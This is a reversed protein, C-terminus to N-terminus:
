LKCPGCDDDEPLPALPQDEDHEDEKQGDYTNTYYRNKVGYTYATLTDKILLTVPIKGEEFNEPNYDFNASISQCMYKQMIAVIKIYGDMTDQDWQYDYKFQLRKIEPVVQRLNGDKSLKGIVPAKAPEIGNTSNSIQASTEAPMQATLTANRIGTRRLQQRLAEWPMREVHPVVLNDVSRKYTDIPLIGQGYKTEKWLKCPGKEIALDASAKILFYTWTEMWEDILDFASEDYSVGNKAFYYALNIIGIGLPRFEETSLRAAPMPYDQYDLLEDLFRVLLNAIRELDEMVGINGAALTCLAIRGNEDMEFELPKTPLTIEQCLNSQVIPHLHELFTGHTNAHDINMLYIRGTSVMEQHLKSFMENASMTVRRISTDAEYKEYLEEFKDQDTYFAELLGPVENPSFFSVDGDALLRKYALRNMLFSYDLQRARNFETGRNNKLVVLDNYELHWWMVHYTAAGGRLGGQSCSKVAAQFYKIFPVQGTHRADGGRIESEIARIESGSIGIGAKRSIYSVTANATAKISDLSDGCTIVVCSSFQKQPTRLAGMIPTPLSIEFTSLADYFQKVYELRYPAKYAMFGTAAIMMMAVQPSEYLKGTVRNQILYKRRFQEMGAYALLFDRDHQIYDNLEDWEAPTYKTILEVSYKGEAVNRKVIENLTWPEFDGYVEKRIQFGLLRAAAYQYDPKKESILEHASKVLMGHIKKTEIGDQFQLKAKLEIESESVKLGECAWRVIKHIKNLDLTESKGNRKIVSITM